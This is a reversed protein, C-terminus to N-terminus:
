HSGAAKERQGRDISREVAMIGIPRNYCLRTLEVLQTKEQEPTLRNGVIQQKAAAVGAVQANMIMHWLTPLLNKVKDAVEEHVTIRVLSGGVLLLSVEVACSLPEGLRAPKGDKGTELVEYLPKATIWCAGADEPSM